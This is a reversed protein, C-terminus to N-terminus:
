FARVARVSSVDGKTYNFQNGKSFGQLWAERSNAESSSWYYNTFGGLGKAKLNKYMLDLEDKSPLFWDQCGGTNLARCRQAATGGRGALIETNRKGTGIGTNTGSVSTRALGWVASFEASAPAAELYRWGDSNNGKDYFVLGGGPGIDGIGIITKATVMQGKGGEVPGEQSSVWFYYDTLPRLNTVRYSTGATTGAFSAGAPNNSAGYYIRYSLGQGAPNWNLEIGTGSITGVRVNQPPTPPTTKATVVQGKDGELPGEQSSVWFYYDTSSRLSSVRYNTGTTTGAFSAGVPNDSTGSYIRYSLGQGAPNWNLEIGTGSITGVRVNSPPPPPAFAEKAIGRSTITVNRSIEGGNGFVMRIRYTGPREIPITYSDNDWLTTVEEDQFYLTGGFVTSVEIGIGVASAGSRPRQSAAQAGTGSTIRQTITTIFDGMKIAAEEIANLYMPAGGMIELTNVDLLSATVVVVAGLKQVQGRVVWDANAAKGLSATKEDSSLDSMQFKNESMVAMINGRTYVRVVNKAQLELGFIEAITEADSAANGSTATFPAVAVRAQQAFCVGCLLALTFGFIIKKVM